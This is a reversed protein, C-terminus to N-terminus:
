IRSNPFRTALIPFGSFFAVSAPSYTPPQSKCSVQRAQLHVIWENTKGALYTVRENAFKYFCKMESPKDNQMFLFVFFTLIQLRVSSLSAEIGKLMLDAMEM